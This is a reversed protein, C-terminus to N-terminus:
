VVESGGVSSQAVDSNQQSTGRQSSYLGTHPKAHIRSPLRESPRLVTCVAHAKDTSQTINHLLSSFRSSILGHILGSRAKQSFDICRTYVALPVTALYQPFASSLVNADPGFRLPLRPHIPSMLPQEAPSADGDRVNGLMAPGMLQRKSHGAAGLSPTGKRLRLADRTPRLGHLDPAVLLPVQQFM